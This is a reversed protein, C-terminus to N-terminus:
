ISIASKHFRPRINSQISNIRVGIDTAHVHSM